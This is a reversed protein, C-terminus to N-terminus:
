KSIVNEFYKILNKVYLPYKSGIQTLSKINLDKIVVMNLREFFSDHKEPKRFYFFDLVAKEMTAIFVTDKLYIYNGFLPNKIHYYNYRVSNIEFNRTNKTTVSTVVSSVEPIMSYHSLASELSIYSPTILRAAIEFEDLKIEAFFYLGKKLSKIYGHNKWRHIKLRLYDASYQNFLVKLDNITFIELKNNRCFKEFQHFNM